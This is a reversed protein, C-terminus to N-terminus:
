DHKIRGTSFKSIPYIKKFIAQVDVNQVSANPNARSQDGQVYSQQSFDQQGFGRNSSDFGRTINNPDMSNRQAQAESDAQLSRAQHILDGSGPVKGLLDILGSAQQSAGNGRSAPGGQANNLATAMEEVESQTVHDNAEGIISHMLDASGFTGTVLGWIWKGHLNIRTNAGVHPFVQQHGLEILALEVYNSHASFDELCHLAQGLCRFAEFLDSEQGGSGHKYVRGYHIARTLSFKVYGMSTAWSGRENAIYNKMGTDMDFELEQPM